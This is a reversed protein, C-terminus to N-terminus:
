QFYNSWYTAYGQRRDSHAVGAREYCHMFVLTLRGVDQNSIIFDSYTMGYGAPVSRHNPLWEGAGPQMSSVLYEVQGILSDAAYGNVEAWNLYKSAPDWQVLGYGPGGNDQWRGPNITYSEHQMNGLVAYIANSSWGKASLNNYVIMANEHMQANTLDGSRSHGPASTTAIVTLNALAKVVEVIAETLAAQMAILVDTLAEQITDSLQGTPDM